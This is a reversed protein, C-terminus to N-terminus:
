YVSGSDMREERRLDGSHTERREVGECTLRTRKMLLSSSELLAGGRM